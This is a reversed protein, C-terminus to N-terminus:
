GQQLSGGLAVILQRARNRLDETAEADAIISQLSALAAERDGKEVEAFARQEVALLRLPNGPAELPKLLTIREDPSLTEAGTLVRKLVALDRYLPPAAPDNIVSEFAEAAAEADGAETAAAAQLLRLVARGAADDGPTVGELATMRAEVGDAQLAAILADGKAEAASREQAKRWENWAAGGVVVVILLVAIWGYRRMLAFLRDRRVEETVEDIFSDQNAM